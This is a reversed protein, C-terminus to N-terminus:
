PCPLPQEWPLSTRGSSGVQVKLVLVEGFGSKCHEFFFNIFTKLNLDKLQEDGAM